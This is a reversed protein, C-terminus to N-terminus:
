FNGSLSLGLGGSQTAVPSLQFSTSRAAPRASVRDGTAQTRLFVGEIMALVGGTQGVATLGTLVTRIVLTFTGCDSENAGCGTNALAMYPGAVPIRLDSAHPADPWLYSLGYAAGYWGVTIGAGILILNPQASPPPYVKPNYNAGSPTPEDARAEAALSCSAILAAGVAWGPIGRPIPRRSM